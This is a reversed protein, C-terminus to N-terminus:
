TEPYEEFVEPQFDMESLKSASRVVSGGRNQCFQRGEALSVTSQGVGIKM